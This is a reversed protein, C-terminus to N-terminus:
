TSGVARVLTPMELALTALIVAVVTALVLWKKGRM